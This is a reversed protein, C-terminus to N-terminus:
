PDLRYVMSRQAQLDVATAWVNSSSSGHIRTFNQTSGLTGREFSWSKGDYHAMDGFNGVAYVDDPAAGWVDNLSGDADLDEVWTNGDYHAITARGGVAWIDDAAFGWMGNAGGPDGEFGPPEYRSWMAGDWHYADTVGALWIDTTSSGWMSYAFVFQLTVRNWTSGNWSYVKSNDSNAIWLNSSDTGWIVALAEFPYTENGPMDTWSSGDWHFVNSDGVAWVDDSAFGWFDVIATAVPPPFETWEAGDFHWLSSGGVWVDDDGSVWLAYTWVGAPGM